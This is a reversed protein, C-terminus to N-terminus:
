ANEAEYATIENLGFDEEKETESKRSEFLKFTNTKTETNKLHALAFAVLVLDDDEIELKSKLVETM